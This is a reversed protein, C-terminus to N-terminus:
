ENHKILIKRQLVASATTMRVIYLGEALDATGITVQNFGASYQQQEGDRVLRGSVDFLEITVDQSGDLTFSVNLFDGAPNPFANLANTNAVEEEEVGVFTPDYTYITGSAVTGAPFSTPLWYNVAQGNAANLYFHYTYTEMVMQTASYSVLISIMDAGLPNSAGFGFSSSPRAWAGLITENPGIDNITFTHTVKYVESTYTGVPVGNYNETNVITANSSTMVPVISANAVNLNGSYHHIRYGPKVGEVCAGANIRGAGTYDDFGPSAPSATVDTATRKMIQEVDEPALNNGNPTPVDHASVMLAAVGAVHPTAASTGNFTRYGNTQNETTEIIQSTGPAGIDVFEYNSAYNDSGAQANQYNGDISTSGISIVMQDSYCAPYYVQNFTTLGDNARAACFIVDNDHAFRVAERLLQSPPGVDRWSNSMVHLGFGGISQDKAGDVIALNVMNLTALTASSTIIRCDYLSVGPNGAVADGGAVGAVGISNNRYAGVIGACGTGHGTGDYPASLAANATFDYGGAVKGNNLEDHLQDIGSDFIGVRAWSQGTEIDWAPEVNIHANAYSTTPHLSAQTSAYYFDNAPVMPDIIGTLEAYWIDAQLTNLSDVVVTDAIGEPFIRFAAWFTPVRVAEGLRSISITDTTQLTYFIKAIKWKTVDTGLKANMNAITANSIFDQVIGFQLDKNNVATQNVVSPDFRVTVEGVVYPAGQFTGAGSVPEFKEYKVTGYQDGTSSATKGTVYIADGSLNLDFAKDCGSTTGNFYQEWEKNGSPDYKIALFDRNGNHDMEGAVFFNGANDTRVKRAEGFMWCVPAAQRRVWQEAGTADYKITTFDKGGAVKATWGTVCVNGSADLALSNACDDKGEGDYTAQWQLALSNNLKLTRMNSTTGSQYVCGTLYVNGSADLTVSTAKDWGTATAVTHRYSATQTGSSNYKVIFIDSGNFAHASMGAVFTNGSADRVVGCPVDPMSVNNYRSVWQQVGSANFRVTAYDLNAFNGTGKSAGTVTVNGTNDVTIGAVVDYGNGPGNYSAQWLLSGSSSYKLVLYDYSFTSASYTAGGVYINGSADSTVTTGYDSGSAAGNYTQSWITVGDSNRVVTLADNQQNITKTNGTMVLRGSPDLVTQVLDITDPNACFAGWVKNVLTQGFTPLAACTLLSLLLFRKKM